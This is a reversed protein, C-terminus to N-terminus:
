IRGMLNESCKKCTAVTVGMEGCRYCKRVRPKPCKQVLHTPSGCNFCKRSTTSVEAVEVQESTGLLDVYALDPELHKQRRSPPAFNQVAERRAELQKCLKRLHDASDIDVLALQSQYFPQLNDLMIKLKANGAVSCTLRSFLAEMNDLYAGVSEDPGQTRQKIETFLKENYNIPQFETRLQLVLQEWDELYKRNNRYWKLANGEFLDLASAFVQREDVNRATMLEEVRELFANVSGVGSFKLGWKYVPVSKSATHNNNAIPTSARAPRIQPPTHQSGHQINAASLNLVQKLSEELLQLEPPKRIKERGDIFITTLDLITKLLDAREDSDDSMRQIRNSVHGLKSELKKLDKKAIERSLLTQLEELKEKIEVEDEEVSYPYPPYKKEAEPNSKEDQLASSLSSRMEEVTGLPLGRLKHEYILEDKSLWCPTIKISM